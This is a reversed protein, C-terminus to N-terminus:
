KGRARSVKRAASLAIAVAQPRGPLMARVERLDATVIDDSSEVDAGCRCTIGYLFALPNKEPVLVFWKHECRRCKLHIIRPDDIL